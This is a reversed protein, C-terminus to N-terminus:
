TTCFGTCLMAEMVMDLMLMWFLLRLLLLLMLALYGRSLRLWREMFMEVEVSFESLFRLRLDGM